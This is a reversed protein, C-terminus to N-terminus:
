DLYGLARLRQRLEADLDVRAGALSDEVDRQHVTSLDDRLQGGRWTRPSCVDRTEGPDSRLDFLARDPAVRRHREASSLGALWGGGRAPLLDTPYVLKARSTRGSILPTGLTRESIAAPGTGSSRGDLRPLLSSGVMAEDRPLGLADLLTPLVDVARTQEDVVTGAFNGPLRMVLPIWLLEDYLTHSHWAVWGHEGFEEGHDSTVVVLTRDWQGNDRLFRFLRGLHRDTYAIEGDYRAVIYALDAADIPLDGTNIRRVLDVSIVEPLPGQYGRSFRKSLRGHPRYPHHPQYTHLFLFWRDDERESLWAVAEDVSEEFPKHDDTYLGFGQALGFTRDLQGGGTFAATTFGAGALREALTVAEGALPSPPSVRAGHATPNLSTLLSAHSDLTSPASAVHQRFLVGAAALEDIVPSTAREYGYCGLHDARLTDLSVLLVNWDASGALGTRSSAVPPADGPEPGVVRGRAARVARDLAVVLVLGVFAWTLALAAFRATRALGGALGSRVLWLLVFLTLATGASRVTIERGLLELVFGGTWEILVAAGLTVVLGGDLLRCRRNRREESSMPPPDDPMRNSRDRFPGPSGSAGPALPNADLLM